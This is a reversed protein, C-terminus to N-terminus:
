RYGSITLEPPSDSKKKSSMVKKFFQYSFPQNPNPKCGIIEKQDILKVGQKQLSQRIEQFKPKSTLFIEPLNKEDTARTRFINRTHSFVREAQYLISKLESDNCNGLKDLLFDCAYIKIPDKTLTQNNRLIDELLTRVQTSTKPYDQQESSIVKTESSTVVIPDSDKQLAPEEGKSIMEAWSSFQKDKGGHSIDQKELLTLFNNESLQGMLEKTITSNFTSEIKHPLTEELFDSVSNWTAKSEQADMINLLPATSQCVQHYATIVNKPIEADPKVFHTLLNEEILVAAFYDSNIIKDPSALSVRYQLSSKKFIKSVIRSSTELDINLSSKLDQRMKEFDFDFGAGFSRDQSNEIFSERFQRYQENEQLYKSLVTLLPQKLSRGIHYVHDSFRCVGMYTAETTMSSLAIQLAQHITECQTPPAKLWSLASSLIGSPRSNPFLRSSLKLEQGPKTGTMIKSEKLVERLLGPGTTEIAGYHHMFSEYKDPLFSSGSSYNDLCREILAKTVEHGPSCVFTDSGIGFTGQSHEPLMFYDTATSSGM